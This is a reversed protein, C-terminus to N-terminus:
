SLTASLLQQTYPHSPKQLVDDANGREVIEGQKMVIINHSLAKIVHIDHSIFVYTLKREAQLKRLLEIVQMQVARDLASTPEDLFLIRPNLILARAIAIRQRQGGSFEHPYRHKSTPDLGVEHMIDNVKQEIQEATLSEHLHLGESIIQKISMRPSLSAFPDQFVVQMACRLPRLQKQNLECIAQGDLVIKGQSGLLRLMAFALTSKGSGSEGVIGLTSGETLQLDIEKLAHFFHKCKGFLPKSIPFNVCLSEAAMVIKPQQLSDKDLSVPSGSPQSNILLKTYDEKPQQFVSKTEGREIIEGKNMVLVRDAAYNVVGLDHTILLISMKYTQQLEKLLDLIEKQVTVDLATTPEDAILLKPKNALAMAIMIRQRQGGSLQHPYAKLKGKPDPIHVQDLLTLVQKRVEQKSLKRHITLVEGIQKEINHLPNLASMPEQFIMGIQDGRIERMASMPLALLDKEDFGIKGSPHFAVPYPLLRMIAHATLSKGSGSEGVLALTECSSIDFSVNKVIDIDSNGQHFSISLDNVSLINM